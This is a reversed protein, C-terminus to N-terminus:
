PQTWHRGYDNTRLETVEGSRGGIPNLRMIGRGDSGITVDSILKYNCCQWYPLDKEASWVSWTTGADTTVAYMWGMFVYGVDANVYRVQDTPIKPQDDHRFTMIERWQDSGSPAAEFLYYAGNVNAGKEEYATVRVKFRKNDSHWQEIVAGRHSRGCLQFGSVVALAFLVLGVFYSKKFYM